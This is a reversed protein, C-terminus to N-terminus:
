GGHYETAPIRVHTTEGLAEVTSATRPESNQPPAFRPDNGFEAWLFDLFARTAPTDPLWIM